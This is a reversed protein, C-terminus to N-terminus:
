VSFRVIDTSLSCCNTYIFELMAMFIDPNTESLVFTDPQENEDTPKEFMARFVECRLFLLEADCSVM